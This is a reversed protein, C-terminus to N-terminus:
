DLWRFSGFGLIAWQSLARNNQKYCALRCLPNEGAGLADSYDQQTVLVRGLRPVRFEQGLRTEALLKGDIIESWPVVRKVFQTM